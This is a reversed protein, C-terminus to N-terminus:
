LYPRSVVVVVVGGGAGEQSAPGLDMNNGTSRLLQSHTRNGFGGRRHQASDSLRVQSKTVGKETAQWDRSDIPIRWTLISSHTEM